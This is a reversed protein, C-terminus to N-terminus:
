EPLFRVNARLKSIEEATLLKPSKLIDEAPLMDSYEHRTLLNAVNAFADTSGDKLYGRVTVEVVFQFCSRLWGDKGLGKYDKLFQQPASKIKEFLATSLAESFFAKMEKDQSGQVIDYLQKFWDRRALLAENFIHRKDDSLKEYFGFKNKAGYVLLEMRSFVVEDLLRKFGADNLKEVNNIIDSTINGKLRNEELTTSFCAKLQGVYVTTNYERMRTALTCGWEGLTRYGHGRFVQGLKHFFRHIGSWKGELTEIREQAMSDVKVAVAERAESPMHVHCFTRINGDVDALLREYSLQLQQKYKVYSAELETIAKQAVEGTLKDTKLLKQRNIEPSVDYGSFILADLISNSEFNIPM